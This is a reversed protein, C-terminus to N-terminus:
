TLSQMCNVGQNIFPYWHINIIEGIEDEKKKGKKINDM